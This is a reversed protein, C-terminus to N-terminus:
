GQRTEVPLRAEQVACYLTPVVLVTILAISMGGFVPIAMPAMVDSGRGSSTLVPILALITTATTMLCPRARRLGARVTAERVEEISAPEGDAFSQNLYTAMIVGDDTAIGFLALFGVWVAVSLNLPHVQFLDRMNAGFVSFDLFWPQGYLWIMMFGGAWAVVIGSFVLLTTPVSHFQMYLITVILFLALPLVLALKKQARVQNEYSGAFSYSVGTPLELEGADIRSQLYDGAQTVADVEAMGPAKDFFVYGVLFTDESKIAQPGVSCDIAALQALPIQAGGPAPVLIRLLDEMTNRLERKYRVRVPYRERGEVTTTIRKGGIAVELVDHVDQLRIGHRAIAERDVEIELYIKGLIRDLIVASSQVAPIEKLMKEVQAGFREITEQDPGQIRVAMPARIGSQLMVLRTSIPQLKPASTSGPVQAAKEIEKWIDDATQIHDRWQRYPRGDRDPILAGNADRVYDDSSADYRFLIRRGGDDVIFEPKYNIVTEVM